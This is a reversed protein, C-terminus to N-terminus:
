PFREQEPWPAPEDGTVSFLLWEVGPVTLHADVTKAAVGELHEAHSLDPPHGRSAWMGTFPDRAPSSDRANDRM